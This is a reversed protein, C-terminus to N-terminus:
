KDKLGLKYSKGKLIMRKKNRMAITQNLNMSKPNPQPIPRTKFRTECRIKRQTLWVM